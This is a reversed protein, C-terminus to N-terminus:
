DDWPCGLIMLHVGEPSVGEGEGDVLIGFCKDEVM